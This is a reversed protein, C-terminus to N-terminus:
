APVAWVVQFMGVREHREIQFGAQKIMMAYGAEDWAWAHCEDHSLAHETAPSSCVLQANRDRIRRLAKHPNTLHELVETIVYIDAWMVADWDVVFNKEFMWTERIGRAVWGAANSPQFDYGYATAGHDLLQRVLGGDGCGLDVIVPSRFAPDSRVAEARTQIIDNQRHWALRCFEIAKELRPRHTDQEWHPARERDKHFDFTSVYAVEGAFLKHETM